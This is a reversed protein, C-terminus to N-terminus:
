FIYHTNGQRAAIEQLTKFVDDNVYFPANVLKAAGPTNVANNVVSFVFTGDMYRKEGILDLESPTVRKASLLYEGKSDKSKPSHYFWGRIMCTDNLVAADIASAKAIEDAATIPAPKEPFARALVVASTFLAIVTAWM